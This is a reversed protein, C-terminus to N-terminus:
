DTRPGRAATWTADWRAFESPTVRYRAYNGEHLAALESEVVAVFRARAAEPITLAKESVWQPVASPPMASRIIGAVLEKLQARYQLRFPDPAGLSERVAKYRAASREYAFTFVDRLLEVRNEEYVGLVGLLFPERPVDVFSLPVLNKQIFPINCALRATRKNGDIFPQLYPLHVLLFFSQEFPDPIQAATHLVQKFCEDLVQPNALPLYVSGGIDVATRRIRGADAANTLLSEALLAHLNRVTREDVRTEQAEEVLYEIAQKHNLVMQREEANRAPAAEDELLLRETELLSYTNGELRSSNWSLDILLRELVRRAYTGAPQEDNGTRGARLL